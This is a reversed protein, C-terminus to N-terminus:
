EPSLGAFYAALAAIQENDLRGAMMQMVPNPRIGDKYAHLAIIFDEAPWGIINPIGSDDGSLRHCTTCESSLYEGYAPDGVIALIEPSLTTGGTLATPASSPIDQPQDSFARLYAMVDHRETADRLGRYAMRTGSVLARPNELYADLTQYTWALGDAHMRRMSRSYSFDDLAGAGRDFIRNLQPGVSNRAGEGLRHCSVCDRQFVEAGADPDGLPIATPEQAVAGGLPAMAFLILLLSHLGKIPRM